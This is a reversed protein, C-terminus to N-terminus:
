RAVGIRGGFTRADKPPNLAPVAGQGGPGVPWGRHISHSSAAVWLALSGAALSVSAGVLFEGFLLTVAYGIFIARHGGGGQRSMGWLVYLVVVSAVIGLFGYHLALTLFQNHAFTAAGGGSSTLEPAAPGHGFVFSLAEISGIAERWLDDRTHESSAIATLRELHSSMQTRLLLVMSAVFASGWLWWRLSLDQRRIALALLPVLGVAQARAATGLLGVVLVILSLYRYRSYAIGAAVLILSATPGPGLPGEIRQVESSLWGTSIGTTPVPAGLGELVVLTTLGLGLFVVAQEIRESTFRRNLLLGLWAMLFTLGLARVENFGAEWRGHWGILIQVVAYIALSALAILHARPRSPAARVKPSVLLVVIGIPVLGEVLYVTGASVHLPIMGALALLGLPDLFRRM